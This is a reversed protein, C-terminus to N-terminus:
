RGILLRLGGLREVGLALEEGGALLEQVGLVGGEAGHGCDPGLDSLVPFPERQRTGLRADSEDLELGDLFEITLHGVVPGLQVVRDGVEVAM